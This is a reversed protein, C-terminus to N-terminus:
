IVKCSSAGNRQLLLVRWRRLGDLGGEVLLSFGSWTEKAPSYM